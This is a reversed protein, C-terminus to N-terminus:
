IVTVNNLNLFSQIKKIIYDFKISDNELPLELVRGYVSLANPTNANGDLLVYGRNACIGNKRLYDFLLSAYDRTECLVVLKHNNTGDVGKTIVRFYKCDKFIDNFKASYYSRFTQVFNEHLIGALIPKEFSNLDDNWYDTFKRTVLDLYKYLKCILSNRYKYIEYRNYFFSKYATWHYLFHNKRKISYNKNSTWFFAGLHGPTAKGPSFSFFGADGFTGVYRKEIKAGLSQAADDILLLQNDKCFREISGLEAPTGYMSAVLVAKVSLEMKLCKKISDLNANLDYENIDYFVTNLGIKKIPVLVSSCIYNPLLITDGSKLGLSLLCHYLASKGCSAYIMKRGLKNDLNVQELSNKEFRFPVFKEIYIM